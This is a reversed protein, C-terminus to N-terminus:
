LAGDSRVGKSPSVGASFSGEDWDDEAYALESNTSVGTAGHQPNRAATPSVSAADADDRGEEKRWERREPEQDRQPAFAGDKARVGEGNSFAPPSDLSAAARAEPEAAYGGRSPSAGGANDLGDNDDDDADADDDFGVSSKTNPRDDYEAADADDDFGVSSKTNPRDDHEASGGTNPRDDYEASGGSYQASFGADAADLQDEDDAHEQRRKMKEHASSFFEGDNHAAYPDALAQGNELEPYGGTSASRLMGPMFFAQLSNASASHAPRPPRLPPLSRPQQPKKAPDALRQLLHVTRTHRSFDRHQSKRDFTSGTSLIRRVMGANDLDIERQVRNRGAENLSRHGDAAVVGGATLNSRQAALNAMTAAAASPRLSGKQFGNLAPASISALAKRDVRPPARPDQTGVGKSISELREVLKRNDRAIEARKHSEHFNRSHAQINQAAPNISKPVSQDVLGKVTKLTEQHRKQGYSWEYKEDLRSIHPAEAPV